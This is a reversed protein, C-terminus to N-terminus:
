GSHKGQERLFTDWLDGALKLFDDKVTGKLLLEGIACGMFLGITVEPGVSKKVSEACGYVAITAEEQTM